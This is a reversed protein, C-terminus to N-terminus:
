QNMEHLGSKEIMKEALERVQKQRRGMDEVRKLTSENAPQGATSEALRQTRVNLQEQLTRLLRLEAMTPVPSKRGSQQGSGGAGGDEAFEDEPPAGEEILASILRDIQAVLEDFSEGTEASLDRADLRDSALGMDDILASMAYDYVVTSAVREKVTATADILERERVALGRVTRIDRRGLRGTREFEEVSKGVDGGIKVQEDRIASLADRFDLLSQKAAEREAAEKAQLLLDLAAHLVDLAALQEPEAGARNGGALQQAARQMPGVAEKVREAVPPTDQEEALQRGVRQTRRSLIEQPNALDQTAAPAAGDPLATTSEWLVRQGDILERLAKEADELKKRLEALMRSQRSELGSIMESLGTEIARQELEAEAGRNGRIANAASQMRDGIMSSRASQEAAVLADASAADEGRVQDALQPLTELLDAVDGALRQQMDANATLRSRQEDDLDDPRRGITEASLRATSQRLRQQRDLLDRTKRVVDQLSNWQDIERLVDDLAATAAQQAEDASEVAERRTSAEPATRARDANEVATTMAGDAVGQLTKEIRGVQDRLARDDVHNQELTRAVSTLRGALRRTQAALRQQEGGIQMLSEADAPELPGEGEVAVAVDKLDAHLAAQEDRAQEIRRGIFKLQEAVRDSLEAHSIVKLRGERSRVPAHREGSLEYNDTVEVAYTVIQGPSLGMPSLPWTMACRRQIGDPTTSETSDGLLDIPPLPSGPAGPDDANLTMTRVGLDDEASAVISVEADPTVELVPAPEILSITPMRDRAVDVRYVAPDRNEFAHGDVVDVLHLTFSFSATAERDITWTTDDGRLLAFREDGVGIWAGAGPTGEHIPATTSVAITVRSGEVVNVPRQDLAHRTPEMRTVYPPPHVTLECSRVAPRAVLRVRSPHSGTSADGAEFWYTFPTTVGEFLRHYEDQPGRQLPVRTERGLEDRTVVVPRLRRSNGRLVEMRCTVSEGLAVIQDGSDPQIIVRRPWEHPGLPDVYRVVGTRLWSPAAFSLTAVAVAAFGATASVRRPLRGSLSRRIPVRGVVDAAREIARQALAPSESTGHQIFEVAGALGRDFEPFHEQVRVAIETLSVPHVLPLAIRRWILVGAYILLVLTLTLRVGGPLRLGWDLAVGGILALSVLTLLRTLGGAVLKARLRRRVTTLADILRRTDPATHPRETM